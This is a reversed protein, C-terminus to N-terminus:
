RFDIEEFRRILEDDKDKEDAFLLIFGDNHAAIKLDGNGEKLKEYEASNDDFHYLEVKGGNYEKGAKAGIVDYLTEKGNKLGLHNAVADIDKDLVIRDNEDTNNAAPNGNNNENGAANDTVGNNANNDMANNDNNGCAVFGVSLALTLMLTIIKKM